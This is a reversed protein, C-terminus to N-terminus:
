KMRKNKPYTTIDTEKKSAQKIKKKKQSQAISLKKINERKTKKKKLCVTIGNVQRNVSDIKITKTTNKQRPVLEKNRQYYTLYANNVM